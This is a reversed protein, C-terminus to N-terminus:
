NFTLHDRRVISSSSFILPVIFPNTELAANGQNVIAHFALIQEDTDAINGNTVAAVDIM